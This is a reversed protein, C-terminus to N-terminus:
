FTVNIPVVVASFNCNMVDPFQMIVSLDSSIAYYDLDVLALEPLPLVVATAPDLAM